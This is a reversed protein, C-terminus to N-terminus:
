RPSGDPHHWPDQESSAVYHGSDFLVVAIISYVIRDILTDRVSENKPDKGKGLLEKLRAQKTAILVEVSQGPTIGVQEASLKFNIYPDESNAYDNSKRDHLAAIEELLASFTTDSM